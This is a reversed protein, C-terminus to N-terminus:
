TRILNFFHNVLFIVGLLVLVAFISNEPGFAGGSIIDPGLLESHFFVGQDFMRTGSLVTGFFVQTYNWAFHLCTVLWLSQTRSYVLGLLLGLLLISLLSMINFADNGFHAVSFILSSVILAAKSSHRMKILRFIVGRFLFEELLAFSLVLCVVELFAVNRNIGTIKFSGTIGICLLILGISAVGLSLGIATDKLFLNIGLNLRTKSDFTRFFLVYIAPLIVLMSIAVRIYGYDVELGIAIFIKKVVLHNIALPIGIACLSSLIILGITIFGKKLGSLKKM